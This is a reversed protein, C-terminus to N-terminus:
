TDFNKFVSKLQAKAYEESFYLKCFEIGAQSRKILLQEDNYLHIVKHAFTKEDDAIAIVDNNDTIGEAGISTTVVPLGRYMSEIIKGKIGAGARLPAIQIRCQSYINKLQTESVNAMLEINDSRLQIIEAAPNSGVILLKVDPLKSLIQPWIDKTFWKIADINPKHDFGGLFMMNRRTEPRYVLPKFKNYIFLPIQKACNIKKTKLYNVEFSSFFYATDINKMLKLEIFRYKLSQFLDTLRKTVKYQRFLRLFHLDHAFYIIKSRTNQKIFDIYKIGIHPRSLIVYDIHPSNDKVWTKWNEQYWPGILVEIGVQQLQSLYNKNPYTHFNDSLFHVQYNAQQFLSLYQFTAKSGADQDIHPIYHDIFLIHQRSQSRDRALFQNEAPNYHNKLLNNQWKQYFKQQNKLQNKKIGTNINNGHSIGDFHVVVSEPQYLVIFGANRVKFALDTDEYYAPQYREDYRNLQEWLSTKIMICAASLYDVEKLYNYQALEPDQNRGYNYGSADNWIIGGAEQLRGDPFILKSGVLGAQDHTKFTNYLRDLWSQQVQTDNNLLVLYESQAYQSARNCNKLYGLQKDNRIVKINKVYEQIHITEDSSNDDAIIIEYPIDNTYYLISKLCNYTYHFQNFVPIVISILPSTYNNFYIIEFEKDKEPLPYIDYESDSSELNHGNSSPASYNRNKNQRFLFNIISKFYFQRKSNDPFLFNRIDYYKVLFHWGNSRHIKDLQLQLIRQQKNLFNITDNLGVNIHNLTNIKNYAKSLEANVLQLQNQSEQYEPRLFHLLYYHEYDSYLSDIFNSNINIENKEFYRRFKDPLFYFQELHQDCSFTRLKKNIVNSTNATSETLTLFFKKSISDLVEYPSTLLKEYSVSLIPQDAFYHTSNALYKLWLLVGQALEIHNRKKLSLAIEYPHRHIWLLKIDYDNKALAKIWIPALLCLRPDKIGILEKESFENEIIHSAKEAYFNIKEESLQQPDFFVDDWGSDLESLIDENLQYVKKNEFFGLPNDAQAKLLTKGLYLGASHLLSTLASTGSRHMGLILLCQKKNLISTQTM